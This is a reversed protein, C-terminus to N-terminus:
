TIEKGNIREQKLNTNIFFVEAGAADHIEWSHWGKKAAFDRSWGIAFSASQFHMPRIDIPDNPSMLNDLGTITFLPLDNNTQSHKDIMIM